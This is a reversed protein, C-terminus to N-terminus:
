GTRAVFFWDVRREVPAAETVIEVEEVLQEVGASRGDWCRETLRWPKQAFIGHTVTSDKIECDKVSQGRQIALPSRV